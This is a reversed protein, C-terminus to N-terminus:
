KSRSSFLGEGREMCFTCICKADWSKENKEQLTERECREKMQGPPKIRRETPVSSVVVGSISWM